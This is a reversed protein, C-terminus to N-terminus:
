KKQFKESYCKLCYSHMYGESDLHQKQNERTLETKCVECSLYNNYM